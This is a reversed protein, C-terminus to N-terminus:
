RGRGQYLGRQIHDATRLTRDEIQALILNLGTPEDGARRRRENDLEDARVMTRDGLIFAGEIMLDREKVENLVAALRREHAQQQERQQRTTLWRPVDENYNSPTLDYPM